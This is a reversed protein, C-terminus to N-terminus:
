GVIATNSALFYVIWLLLFLFWLIILFGFFYFSSHRILCSSAFISLGLFFPDSSMYDMSYIYVVLSIGTVVFLMVSSFSDISFVLLALNLYVVLQHKVIRQYAVALEFESLFYAVLLALACATEAATFTLILLGAIQGHLECFAISKIVFEYNIALFTLELCM